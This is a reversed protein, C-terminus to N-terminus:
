GQDGSDYGEWDEEREEEEEESSATQYKRKLRKRPVTDLDASRKRCLRDSGVAVHVSNKQFLEWLEPSREWGDGDIGVTSEAYSCWDDGFIATYRKKVKGWSAKDQIADENLEFCSIDDRYCRQAFATGDQIRRYLRDKEIQARQADLSDLYITEADLLADDEEEIDYQRQWRPRPSSSHNEYEEANELLQLEESSLSAGGESDSDSGEENTFNGDIHMAEWQFGRNVNWETPWPFTTRARGGRDKSSLVVEAIEATTVKEGRGYMRYFASTNGIFTIGMGHLRSPLTTFHTEFSRPLNLIDVATRVELPSVPNKSQIEQPRSQVLSITQILRRTLSLIISNLTEITQSSLTMPSKTPALMTQYRVIDIEFILPIYWRALEEAMETNLVMNEIDPSEEIISSTGERRGLRRANKDEFELWMEDVEVAAPVKALEYIRHAKSNEKRLIIEEDLLGVYATVEALSKSRIRRAVEQLNGKGCRALATFFREKEDATWVTNLIVSSVLPQSKCLLDSFPDIPSNAEHIYDTLLRTYRIGSRENRLSQPTYRHPTHFSPQVRSLIPVEDDDADTSSLLIEDETM